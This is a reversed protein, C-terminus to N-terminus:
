KMNLNYKILKLTIKIKKKHRSMKISLKLTCGKMPVKQFKRLVKEELNKYIM